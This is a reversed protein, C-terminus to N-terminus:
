TVAMIPWMCMSYQQAVHLGHPRCVRKLGSRDKCFSQLPTGDNSFVVIRCEKNETAYHNRHSDASIDRSNGGYENGIRRMYYIYRDYVVIIGANGGVVAM